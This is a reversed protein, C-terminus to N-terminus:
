DNHGLSPAQGAHVNGVWNLGLLANRANCEFCFRQAKVRDPEIVVEVSDRGRRLFDSKFAPCAVGGQSAISFANANALHYCTVTIAVRCEQCLHGAGDIYETM